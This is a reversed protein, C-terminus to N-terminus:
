KGDIKWQQYKNYMLCSCMCFITCLIMSTLVIGIWVDILFKEYEENYVKSNEPRSINLQSEASILTKVATTM